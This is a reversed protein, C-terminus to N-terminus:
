NLREHYSSGSASGETRPPFRGQSGAGLRDAGGFGKRRRGDMLTLLYCAAGAFWLILTWNLFWNV